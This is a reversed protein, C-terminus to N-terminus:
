CIYNGTGPNPYMLKLQKGFHGGVPIRLIGVSELIIPQKGGVSLLAGQSFVVGVCSVLCPSM